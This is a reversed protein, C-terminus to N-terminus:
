CRCFGEGVGSASHGVWRVRQRKNEETKALEGDCLVYGLTGFGQQNRDLKRKLVVLAPATKRTAEMGPFREGSEVARVGDAGLNALRDAEQKRERFIRRVYDSDKGCLSAVKKKWWSHLTRQVEGIGERLTEDVAYYGSLWKEAVSSDGCRLLLPLHVAYETKSTFIQHQLWATIFVFNNLLSKLTFFISPHSLALTNCSFLWFLYSGNPFPHPQGEQNFYISLTHPPRHTPCVGSFFIRYQHGSFTQKGPSTSGPPFVCFCLAPFVFPVPVVPTTHPAESHDPSSSHPVFLLLRWHSASMHSKTSTFCGTLCLGPTPSSILACFFSSGVLVALVAM